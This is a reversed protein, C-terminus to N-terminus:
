FYVGYWVAGPSVRVAPMPLHIFNLVEGLTKLFPTDSPIIKRTDLDLAVFYVRYPHAGAINRAGYGPALCLWAPWFGSVADPLLNHVNVSLWITQGEYDDFVLHKQGKFGSGGPENLLDSKHYSFKMNYNQLAPIHYQAVPWFSGALDSAFDVRDFGWTSLGDEVELFTQFALAGAAGWLIAHSEPMDAWLLSKDIMFTLASAGYFHGLKDVHLGYKLDEQFHFPRRNDKWWGNAQYIQVAVMGSVLTGGVIALRGTNVRTSDVQACAQGTVWAFLVVIIAAQRTM